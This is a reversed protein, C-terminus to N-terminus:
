EADHAISPLRVYYIDWEEEEILNFGHKQYFLNADSGRLAGVHLPLGAADAEGFIEDLVATGIGQQQFDPHIYLHDLLIHEEKPKVVVFGVRRDNLIVHRTDLASFGARFRERARIPDFRGIRELSERMAEIRLSVLEEFDSTLAPILTVQAKNIYPM